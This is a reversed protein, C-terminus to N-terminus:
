PLSSLYTLSLSALHRTEAILSRASGDRYISALVQTLSSLDNSFATNPRSRAGVGKTCLSRPGRTQPLNGMGELRQGLGCRARVRNEFRFHVISECYAAQKAALRDRNRRM